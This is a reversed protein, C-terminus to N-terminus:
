IYCLIAHNPYLVFMDNTESAVEKEEGMKKDKKRLAAERGVV